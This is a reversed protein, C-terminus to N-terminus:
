KQKFSIDIDNNLLFVFFSFCVLMCGCSLFKCSCITIDNGAFYTNNVAVGGVRGGGWGGDAAM